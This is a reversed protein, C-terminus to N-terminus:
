APDTALRFSPNRPKGWWILDLTTFIDRESWLGNRAYVKWYILSGMMVWV